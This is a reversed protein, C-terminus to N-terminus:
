GRRQHSRGRPLQRLDGERAHRHADIRLNEALGCEHNFTEESVNLNEPMASHCDLCSNKSQAPSSQASAPLTLLLLGAIMLLPWLLPKNKIASVKGGM